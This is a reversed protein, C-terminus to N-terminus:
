PSSMYQVYIIKPTMRYHTISILVSKNVVLVTKRAQQRLGCGTSGDPDSLYPAYLWLIEQDM